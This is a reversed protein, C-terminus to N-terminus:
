LHRERKGKGPETAHGMAPQSSPPAADTCGPGLASKYVVGVHSEEHGHGLKEEPSLPGADRAYIMNVKMSPKLYQLSTLEARRQYKGRGKCLNAGEWRLGLSKAMHTDVLQRPTLGKGDTEIPHMLQYWEGISDDHLAHVLIVGTREAMGAIMEAWQDEFSRKKAPAAGARKELEGQTRSLPAEAASGREAQDDAAKPPTDASSSEQGSRDRPVGPPKSDSRAAPDAAPDGAPDVQAVHANLGRPGHPRVQVGSAAVEVRDPAGEAAALTSAGATTLLAASTLCALARSMRQRM